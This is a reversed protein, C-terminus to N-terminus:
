FCFKVCCSVPSSPASQKSLTSWKRFFDIKQLCQGGNDELEFVYSRIRGNDENPYNWCIDMSRSNLNETFMEM